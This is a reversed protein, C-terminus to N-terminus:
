WAKIKEMLFWRDTMEDLVQKGRVIKFRAFIQKSNKKFLRLNSIKAKRYKPKLQTLVQKLCQEGGNDLIFKDSSISKLLEYDANQFAILYQSCLDRMTKATANSLSRKNESSHLTGSCGIAFVTFSLCIFFKRIKM